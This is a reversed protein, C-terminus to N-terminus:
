GELAERLLRNVAAEISPDGTKALLLQVQKKVTSPKVDRAAALDRRKTGMAALRLVDREAFTLEFERAWRDVLVDVTSRTLTSRRQVRTAFLDLQAADLPKLLYHVRLAHTEALRSADVEGSMVLIPLFPDLARAAAVLDFGSGDPLGVDVVLANPSEAALAQRAARYTDVVTAKGHRNLARAVSRAVLPEDEAVLFLADARM